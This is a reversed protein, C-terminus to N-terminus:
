AANRRQCDDLPANNHNQKQDAASRWAENGHDARQHHILRSGTPATLASRAALQFQCRNGSPILPYLHENVRSLDLCSAREESPPLLLKCAFCPQGKRGYAPQLARFTADLGVKIGNSFIRCASSFAPISNMPDGFRPTRRQTRGAAAAPGDCSSCPRMEWALVPWTEPRGTPHHTAASGNPHIWAAAKTSPSSPQAEFTQKLQIALPVLWVPVCSFQTGCARPCKRAQILSRGTGRGEVRSRPPPSAASAGKTRCCSGRIMCGANDHAAVTCTMEAHRIRGTSFHIPDTLPNGDVSIHVMCHM